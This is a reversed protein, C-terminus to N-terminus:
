RVVLPMVMIGNESFVRLVYNGAHLHELNATLTGAFKELHLRRGTVDYLEMTLVGPNENAVIHV